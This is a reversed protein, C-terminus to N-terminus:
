VSPWSIEWNRHIRRYLNWPYGRKEITSRQTPGKLNFTEHFNAAAGQWKWWQDYMMAAKWSVKSDPNQIEKLNWCLLLTETSWAHLLQRPVVPQTICKSIHCLVIAQLSLEEMEPVHPVKWTHIGHFEWISGNMTVLAPTDIQWWNGQRIDILQSPKRRSRHRGETSCYSLADKGTEESETPWHQNPVPYPTEEKSGPQRKGHADACISSRGLQRLVWPRLQQSHRGPTCIEEHMGKRLTRQNPDGKLKPAEAM